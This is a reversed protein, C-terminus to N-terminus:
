VVAPLNSRIRNKRILATGAPEPFYTKNSKITTETTAEEAM